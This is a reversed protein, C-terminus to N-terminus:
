YSDIYRKYAETRSVEKNWNDSRFKKLGKITREDQKPSVHIGFLMRFKFTEIMLKSTDMIQKLVSKEMENFREETLCIQKGM